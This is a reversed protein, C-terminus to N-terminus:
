AKIFKKIFSSYQMGRGWWKKFNKFLNKNDGKIFKPLDEIYCEISKKTVDFM